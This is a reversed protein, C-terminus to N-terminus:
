SCTLLVCLMESPQWREVREIATCLDRTLYITSGDSKRLIVEQQSQMGDKQKQQLTLVVAGDSLRQVLGQSSSENAHLIIALVREWGSM